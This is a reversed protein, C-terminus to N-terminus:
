LSRSMPGQIRLSRGYKGEALPLLSNQIDQATIPQSYNSGRVVLSSMFYKHKM